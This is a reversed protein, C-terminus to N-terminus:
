PKAAKGARARAAPDIRKEDLLQLGTLKWVGDHAEIRLKASYLNKRQHVHGWHGVSGEATWEAQVEYALRGDLPGRATAKRMEVTKIRAQAGGAQEIILSRRSQLYVDALLDGAVSTALKDYVDSEARFDFSRYVNKLLSALM